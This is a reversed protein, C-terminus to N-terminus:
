CREVIGHLDQLAITSIQSERLAAIRDAVFDPPPNLNLLRRTVCLIHVRISHLHIDGERNVILDYSAGSFLCFSEALAKILQDAVIQLCNRASVIGFAANLLELLKRTLAMRAAPAEIPVLNMRTLVIGTRLKKSVLM